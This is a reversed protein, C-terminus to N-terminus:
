SCILRIMFHRLFIRRGVWPLGFVRHAMSFVKEILGLVMSNFVLNEWSVELWIFWNMCPFDKIMFHMYRKAILIWAKKMAIAEWYNKISQPPTDLSLLIFCGGLGLNFFLLYLSWDNTMILFDAILRVSIYQGADVIYNTKDWKVLLIVEWNTFTYDM